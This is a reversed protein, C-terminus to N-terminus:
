KKLTRELWDNFIRHWLIGNQPGQIWHGDEPFYLFRSEIGKLQLVSFAEMGQGIPVRFDKEGHIVLMPTDWAAAANHPSFRDYTSPRPEQWYPGGIDFNVFFMEETVGYMSELNFVGAHAIFTKFRGDHHGALWYVSYGGFSAGIAGLRDEDVWPEAAVDDIASLLDRMAQGGWDGSIEEKFEQGLGPVGRRNPAVIVYGNAAMMQFNWRYSFFQSVSSQPGGQAYLIAPYQKAPDFGPPTIVWTVIDAGDSAKVVRQQVEALEVGALLEDNFHTIQTTDGSAVDIRYLEAPASMSTRSAILAVGDGATSLGFGGYNHVGETLQRIGGDLSAEYLQVTGRTESTFFLSGSDAHWVASHADQDFGVTLERASEWLAASAEGAAPMPAVFLRNRDSEYGDREMSQWAMWRGDPSFVPEIDYGFNGETLNSTQETAWDYLYLDTDTSVAFETGIKKKSTYAIRASDASWNIQEVGGFPNVPTDFREGPMVDVLPGIQGNEYEAVFLHSYAYDHWSSWHRYMLSDIIRGNALPLDAYTDQTNADLKIDRTFAVRNGDPSYRFSGVGGEIDSVQRLAGSVPEIEWLQTSGSHASLFGIASGDPRWEASHEAGDWHTVRRQGDGAADQLYLDTNGRNTPVDYTTVGYVFWQGDPSVVPAGVRALSWLFEPTMAAREQANAVSVTLLVVVCSAISRVNM